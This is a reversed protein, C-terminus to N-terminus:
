APEEGRLPRTLDQKLRDLIGNIFKPSDTTGLRKSIEMAENMAVLPPTEPCHFMEYVALRLLNRDVVELRGFDWNQLVAKLRADIGEMQPLLGHVLSTTFGRVRDEAVSTRALRLGERALDEAAELVLEASQTQDPFTASVEAKAAAAREVVASLRDEIRRHPKDALSEGKEDLMKIADGLGKQLRDWPGKHLSESAVFGDLPWREALHFREETSLHSLFAATSADKDQHVSNLALGSFLAMGRRSADWAKAMKVVERRWAEQKTRSFKELALKQVTLLARHRAMVLRNEVADGELGQGLTPPVSPTRLADRFKGAWSDEEEESIVLSCAAAFRRVAKHCRTRFKEEAERLLWFHDLAVQPDGPAATQDLAYLFQVAAERGERRPSM